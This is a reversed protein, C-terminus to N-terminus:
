NRNNNGYIVPFLRQLTTKATDDPLGIGIQFNDSDIVAACIVAANDKFTIFLFIGTQM